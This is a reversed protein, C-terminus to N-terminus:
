NSRYPCSPWVRGLRKPWPFLGRGDGGGIASHACKRSFRLKALRRGAIDIATCVSCKEHVARGFVDIRRAFEALFVVLLRQRRELEVVRRGAREPCAAGRDRPRDLM